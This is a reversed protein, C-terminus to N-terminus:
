CSQSAPPRDPRLTQFESVVEDHEECASPPVQAPMSIRKGTLEMYIRAYAMASRAWGFDVSMARKRLHSWSKPRAEYLHLCRSFAAEMAEGTADDFVFGTAGSVNRNSMDTDRVSDALGGVRRVVPITGYRMAYMQSLGCPEFRSGHLLVDAGAHLCHARGEEYGIQVSARGPYRHPLRAFGEELTRDGQGHLAFQLRPHQTMMKPLRELLVDAMKQATLRCIFVALPASVDIKLSLGRQLEAKSSRKGRVDESSFHHRLYPDTRPDWQDTDIGNLIGTLDAGRARFLGELGYGFEPTCIEKAYTPSVTTVRNACCVGAKLFSLRGYFEIGDPTLVWHPLGLPEAQDLPFNGQFAANHVTFVTRPGKPGDLSLLLPVLGTHWDNAHVIDPQWGRIGQGSAV